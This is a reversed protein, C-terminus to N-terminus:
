PNHDGADIADFESILQRVSELQGPVPERELSWCVGERVPKAPSGAAVSFRPLTSNVVARAAVVSGGGITAGKLVLVDQGFWVHPEITVPKPPNLWEGSGTDYMGHLDSTRITTGPAFLCNKGIEVGCGDGEVIISTGNFISGHGITVAAGSSVFRITLQAWRIDDGCVAINGSGEFRLQDPCRSEKGLVFVNDRASPFVVFKTSIRRKGGAIVVWNSHEANGIPVVQADALDPLASMAARVSLSGTIRAALEPMDDLPRSSSVGLKLRLGSVAKSISQGSLKSM